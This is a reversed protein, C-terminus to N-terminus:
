RTHPCHARARDLRRDRPDYATVGATRGGASHGEVAIHDLDLKGAFPGDSRGNETTLLALTDFITQQDTTTGATSTTAFAVNDRSPHAPAVVIYGWSATHANHRSAFQYNSGRAHSHIVVPFPGTTSIPLDRWADDVTTTQVSDPPFAPTLAGWVEQPTYAYQVADGHVAVRDVPYFVLVPRTPDLALKTVGVAYPGRGSFDEPADTATPGPPTANNNSGGGCGSAVTVLLLGVLGLTTVLRNCRRATRSAPWALRVTSARSRAERVM